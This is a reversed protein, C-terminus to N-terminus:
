NITISSYDKLLNVNIYEQYGKIPVTTIDKDEVLSKLDSYNKKNDKLIRKHYLGVKPVIANSDEAVVAMKGKITAIARISKEQIFPMFVTIIFIEQSSLLKMINQLEEFESNSEERYIYNTTFNLSRDPTSLFLNEFIAGMKEVQYEILTNHNGFKLMSKDAVSKQNNDSTFIVCPIKLKNM